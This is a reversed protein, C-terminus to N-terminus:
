VERALRYDYVTFRPDLEAVTPGGGALTAVGGPTLAGAGAQPLTRRMTFDVVPEGDVHTLEVSNLQGAHHSKGTPTQTPPLGYVVLPRVYAAVRGVGGGPASWPDTPPSIDSAHAPFWTPTLQALAHAAYFRMSGAEWRDRADTAPLYMSALDDLAGGTVSLTNDVDIPLEIPSVDATGDPADRVYVTPTEPKVGTVSGVYTSISVRNPIGLKSRRWNADFNLHDASVTWVGEAAADLELGWLAGFDVFEMPYDFDAFLTTSLETPLFDVAFPNAPDLHGAGADPVIVPQIVGLSRNSQQPPSQRMIDVLIPLAPGRPVEVPWFPHLAPAVSGGSQPLEPLGDPFGPVGRTHVAVAALYDATSHGFEDSAFPDVYAEGADVERSVAVLAYRLGDVDTSGVRYAVPSADVDTIRGYFDVVTPDDADPAVTFVLEAAITTGEDFLEVPGPAIVNLKLEVPEPQAPWIGDPFRWAWTVGDEIFPDAADLEDVGVAEIVLPAAADGITVTCAMDLPLAM